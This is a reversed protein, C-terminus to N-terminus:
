IFYSTPLTRVTAPMNFINSFVDIFSIRRGTSGNRQGNGNTASASERDVVLDVALEDICRRSRYEREVSKERKDNNRISVAVFGVGYSQKANRRLRLLRIRGNGSSDKSSGWWRNWFLSSPTYFYIQVHARWREDKLIRTKM